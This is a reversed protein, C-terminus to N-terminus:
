THSGRVERVPGEADKQNIDTQTQRRRISKPEPPRAISLGRLATVRQVLRPATTTRKPTRGKGSGTFTQGTGQEISGAQSPKQNEEETAIPLKM